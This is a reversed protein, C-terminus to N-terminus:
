ELRPGCYPGKQRDMAQLTNVYGPLPYRKLGPQFYLHFLTFRDEPSKERRSKLSEDAVEVRGLQRLKELDRHRTVVWVDPATIKENRLFTLNHLLGATPRLYFQNRFFDMEGGLDSNVYLPQDAPVEADVRRLFATDQAVMDPTFDQGWCYAIAIGMFCAAAAMTGNRRWMGLSFYGVCAILVTALGFVAPWPATIRHRFITLGAAALIAVVAMVILPHVAKRVPNMMGRGVAMVGVASLIAWPALSPVLYHHHKRHPISLLVVPVIAWCWLFRLGSRRDRLATHRTALFGIVSAWIWPMCLGALAVPFYWFPGDYDKTDAYDFKWNQVVDPYRRRAAYTWAFFLVAFILWGWLWVYRRIRTFDPAARLARLRPAIARDDLLSAPVNNEQERERYEPLPSPHPSTAMDQLAGEGQGGSPTGPSPSLGAVPKLPRCALLLFVAVPGIVVVAGVLPSKVMNSIGLVIFFAWVYWPRNGFFGVHPDRALPSAFETKVFLAVALAVVAALFIDDEALVAYAYFEYMTALVFGSMLGAKRGLWVSAMWATMLVVATAMVVSPLRVAWVVDCRQGLLVSTAILIWHPIPPRELWPRGGSQPFLWNHHALMERATQPLRAEHLSLPRGSFMEYGFLLLCFATLLVFDRSLLRRADLAHPLPGDYSNAHSALPTASEM